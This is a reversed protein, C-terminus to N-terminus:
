KAKRRGGKKPAPAEPQDKVIDEALELEPLTEEDDAEDNVESLEPTIAPESEAVDAPTPSVTEPADETAALVGRSVLEAIKEMGLAEVQKETLYEGVSIFGTRPDATNTKAFYQM